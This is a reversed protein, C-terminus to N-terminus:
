HIIKAILILLINNFLYSYMANWRAHTHSCARSSSKDVYYDHYGCIIIFFFFITLLDCECLANATRISSTPFSLDFFFQKLFPPLNHNYEDLRVVPTATPGAAPGRVGYMPPLTHLSQLVYERIKGGFGRRYDGAVDARSPLGVHYYIINYIICATYM